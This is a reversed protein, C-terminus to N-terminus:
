DNDSGLGSSPETILNADALEALAKDLLEQCGVVQGEAKALEKKFVDIRGQAEIRTNADRVKKKAGEIIDQCEAVRLQWKELERTFTAVKDQIAPINDNM